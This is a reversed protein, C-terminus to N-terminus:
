GGHSEEKPAYQLLIRAFRKHGAKLYHRRWWDAIGALMGEPVSTPLSLKDVIDTLDNEADTAARDMKDKDEQTFAM